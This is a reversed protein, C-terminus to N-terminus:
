IDTVPEDDVDARHPIFLLSGRQQFRNADLVESFEIIGSFIHLIQDGNACDPRIFITSIRLLTNLFCSALLPTAKKNEMNAM